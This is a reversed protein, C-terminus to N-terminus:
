QPTTLREVLERYRPKNGLKEQLIESNLWFVASHPITSQAHREVSDLAAQYQGALTLTLPIYYPDLRKPDDLWDQMEGSDGSINYKEVLDVIRLDSRTTGALNIITQFVKRAEDYEGRLIHTFGKVQLGFLFDPAFDLTKDIRDLAADYEGISLLYETMSSGVIRSRPDIKLAREFAVGAQQKKGYNNLAGAYWQWATANGPEYQVALEFNEFSEKWELRLLHRYALVNHARGSKPNL